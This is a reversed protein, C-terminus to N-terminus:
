KFNTEYVQSFLLSDLILLVFCHQLVSLLLKLVFVVFSFFCTLVKTLLQENEVIKAALQSRADDLLKTYKEQILRSDEVTSKLEKQLAAYEDQLRNCICRFIKL